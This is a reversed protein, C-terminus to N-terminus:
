KKRGKKRKAPHRKKGKMGKYIDQGLAALIGILVIPIM